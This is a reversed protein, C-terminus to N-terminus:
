KSGEDTKSRLYANAICNYFYHISYMVEHFTSVFRYLDSNILNSLVGQEMRVYIFSFSLKRTTNSGEKVLVAVHVYVCLFDM